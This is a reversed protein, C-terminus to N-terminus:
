HLRRIFELVADTFADNRDGAVMHGAKSIDVHEAHPVAELLERVGQESVVESMRGRVLLTPIRLRRAAADFRRHSEETIGVATAHELFRPDWHWVYRGDPTRRLNRALGSLDKPPPRHPLYRAVAAAAEEVSAFGEPHGRMFALIREVGELEMRPTIDVLVLARLVGGEGEGEALLSVLGGLSAGVTVPPAGLAAAVARVDEAITASAYDGDPPWDSEGHGRHDLSVVHHGALAVAQAAGAWAGRTQGGGHLFLVPPHSPDGWADGRLRV